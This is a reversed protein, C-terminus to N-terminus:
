FKTTISLFKDDPFFEFSRVENEAFEWLATYAGCPIIHHETEISCKLDDFEDGFRDLVDQVSM